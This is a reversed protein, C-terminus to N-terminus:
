VPEGILKGVQPLHPFGRFNVENEATDRCFEFTRPCGRIATVGDGVAVPFGTDLALTLVGGTTHEAVDYELGTNDGSTFLVTGRDFYGAAQAFGSVTIQYRSGVATVTSSHTFATLDKGCRADGFRKVDCAATIRKGVQRNFREIIDFLEITGLSGGWRVRGIDGRFLVEPAVTLDSYNFQEIEFTAFDWLGAEVDAESVADADFVLQVEANDVSMDSRARTESPRVGQLPSYFVDDYTFARDLTSFGVTLDDLGDIERRILRCRIAVTTQAGDYHTQLAVPIVKSM